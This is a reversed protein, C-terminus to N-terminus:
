HKKIRNQALVSIFKIESEALIALFEPDARDLWTILEKYTPSCPDIRQIAGYRERLVRIQNKLKQTLKIM